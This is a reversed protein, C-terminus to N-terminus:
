DWPLQIGKLEARSELLSKANDCLIRRKDDDSVSSHEVRFVGAYTYFFPTNSGLLIKSAGLMGILKSLSNIPGQLHSIETLVNELSFLDSYETIEPLNSGSIVLDVRNYEAAVKKLAEIVESSEATQELYRPDRLRLYIQVLLENEDAFCFLESWRSYDWQQYTPYIRLGFISEDIRRRDPDFDPAISLFRVVGRESCGELADKLKTEFAPGIDSVASLRVESRRASEILESLRFATSDGPLRGVHANFDIIM